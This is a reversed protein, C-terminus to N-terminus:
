ETSWRALHQVDAGGDVQASPYLLVEGPCIRAAPHTLHDGDRGRHVMDDARMWQLRRHAFQPQQTRVCGRVVAFGPERVAPPPHHEGLFRKRSEGDDASSVPPRREARKARAAVRCGGCQGKGPEGTYAGAGVADSCAASVAGSTVALRIWVVSGRGAGSSGPHVRGGVPVPEGGHEGDQVACVSLRQLGHAVPNGLQTGQPAIFGSRPLAIRGRCEDLHQGALM